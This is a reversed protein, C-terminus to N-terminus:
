GTVLDQLETSAEYFGQLQRRILTEQWIDKTVFSCMYFERLFTNLFEEKSTSSAATAVIIEEARGSKIDSFLGQYTTPCVYVNNIHRRSIYYWGQTIETVIHNNEIYKTFCVDAYRHHLNKTEQVFTRLLSVPVCYSWHSAYVGESVENDELVLHPLRLVDFFMSRRVKEVRRQHWLDDDDTFLLHTTDVPLHPLLFRYHEFQSQKTAHFHLHLQPYSPLSSLFEDLTTRPIDYSMSVFLPAPDVAWSSLM